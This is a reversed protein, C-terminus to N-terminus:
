LNNIFNVCRKKSLYIRHSYLLFFILPQLNAYVDLVCFVFFSCEFRWAFNMGISHLSYLLLFCLEIMMWWLMEFNAFFILM